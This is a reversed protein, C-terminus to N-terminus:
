GRQLRAAFVVDSTVCAGDDGESDTCLPFWAVRYGHNTCM